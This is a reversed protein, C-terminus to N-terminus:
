TVYKTDQSIESVEELVTNDRELRFKERNEAPRDEITAESENVLSDNL